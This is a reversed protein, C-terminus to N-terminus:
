VLWKRSKELARAIERGVQDSRLAWELPEDVFEVVESGVNVGLALFPKGSDPVEYGFLVGKIERADM